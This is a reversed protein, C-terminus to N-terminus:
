NVKPKRVVCRSNDPTPNEGSYTCCPAHGLCSEDAFRCGYCGMDWHTWEWVKRDELDQYDM